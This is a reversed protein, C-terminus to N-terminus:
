QEQLDKLEVSVKAEAALKADKLLKQKEVEVGKEIEDKINKQSKETAKIKELLEAEKKELDKERQDAEAGLEKRVKNQIQHTLAETLPIEKKCHPCTINQEAM